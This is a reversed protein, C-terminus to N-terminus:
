SAKSPIPKVEYIKSWYKGTVLLNGNQPNIAIGNLVDMNRTADARDVMGAASYEDSVMGTAPDFAVIKATTYVNAYIKGDIYELENLGGVDGNHDFVKRRGLESFDDPSLFYIFSSGDSAILATDNHTLGWGETTFTNYVHEDILDFDDLNYVFGRSSKYTLQYVKDNYITIGEGFIDGDMEKEMHVKGSVLDTKRIRTENYNGTGEYLYGNHILLGQTFSKPDHPYKRIVEFNWQKPPTPSLVDIEKYRNSTEGNTFSASFKIRQKGGGLERTDIVVLSDTAAISLGPNDPFSLELSEVVLDPDVPAVSMRITDGFAVTKDGDMVVRLSPSSGGLIGRNVERINDGDGCSHLVLVLIIIATYRVQFRM